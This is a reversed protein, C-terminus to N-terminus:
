GLRAMARPAFDEHLAGEHTAAAFGAVTRRTRASLRARVRELVPGSICLPAAGEAEWLLAFRTRDGGFRGHGWAPHLPRAGEGESFADRDGSDLYSEAPLGEALIVAHSPLEVHYYVVEDVAIQAVSGGNVLYRVPILAGDVFVAHDPSLFLDRAPQNAAFAHARVRVPLVSEPRPHSACDVRRHGVWRVPQDAGRHTLVLDGARLDEVAVAGHPTAIRTGEAYCAVLTINTNAGSTTAVFAWGPTPAVGFNLTLGGGGGVSGLSLVSGGTSGTITEHVGLLAITDGLGFSTLTSYVNGPTGVDLEEGVGTFKVTPVAIQGDITATGATGLILAGGLTGNGGLSGTILLNGNTTFTGDSIASGTLTGNGSARAGASVTFSSSTLTINSRALSVSGGSSIQVGGLSASVAGFSALDTTGVQLVGVVSLSGGTVSLSGYGYGPTGSLAGLQMGGQDTLLGGSISLTASQAGIGGINAISIQDSTSLTGGAITIGGNGIALGVGEGAQSTQQVVAGSGITLTGGGSSANGLDIAGTANLQGGSMTLTGSGGNGILLAPNQYVTGNFTTQAGVVNITGGSALTVLGTALSNGQAIAIGGNNANLLAGAGGVLVTGTAGVSSSYNNGVQLAQAVNNLNNGALNLTGGAGVTIMGSGSAVTPGVLLGGSVTAGSLVAGTITGLGLTGGTITGGSNSASGLSAGSIAGGAITGGSLTEGTLTQNIVQETGVSLVGGLSVSGGASIALSGTAGAGIQANGIGANLVAGPGSVTAVGTPNLTGSYATGITLDTTATGNPTIFLTGGAGVTLTGSGAFVTQSVTSNALTGGVVTGGTVVGGAVSAGTITEGSLTGGTITAGSPNISQDEGIILQGNANAVGGVVGLSGHGGQGVLLAAGAYSTGNNVSSWPGINLSGGNSILLSGSANPGGDGLQLQGNLSLMAGTGTVTLSGIASGNSNYNNGIGMAVGSVPDQVSVTGYSGITGTAVGNQLVGGGMNANGFLITGQVSVMASSGVSGAVNLTGTDGFGGALLNGNVSLTAGAGVSLLGSGGDQTGGANTGWGLLLANGSGGGVMASGGAQVSLTGSGGLDQGIWTQGTATLTTQTGTVLVSGQEFNGVQLASQTSVNAGVNVTAGNSITVTGSGTGGYSGTGVGMSLYGNGSTGGQLLAGSGSVVLDGTGLNGVLVAFNNATSPASTLLLTGGLLLTGTTLTGNGLVLANNTLTSQAGTSVFGGALIDLTGNGGYITSGTLTGNTLTGNTFTGSNGVFIGNAVAVSGLTGVYVVGSDGHGGIVLSSSAVVTGAGSSYTTGNNVVGGVVLTGTGGIAVLTASTNADGVNLSKAQSASGAQLLGGNEVTVTGNGGRGISGLGADIVVAGTGTITLIGTGRQAINLGNSGSIAGVLITGYSGVTVTGNGVTNGTGGIAINESTGGNLVAPASASGAVTLAGNGAQGIVVAATSGVTQTALVVDGAITGVGNSGSAAGLVLQPTTFTATTGSGTIVGTFAATAGSDILLTGTNASGVVVGAGATLSGGSVVELSAPSSSTAGDVSLSGAVGVTGALVYSGSDGISAAAGNGTITGSHAGALTVANGTTAAATATAVTNTDFWNGATGWAGGSAGQWTMPDSGASSVFTITTTGSATATNFSAASYSGAFTLSQSGLTLVGGSFGLTGTDGQLIIADGGGFNSITGTLSAGSAISLSGKPNFSVAASNGAASLLLDSNQQIVLSGSGTAAAALSLTGGGIGYTGAMLVGSVAVADNILGPGVLDGGAAISVANGVNGDTSITGGGLALLGGSGVIVSGGAALAIAAGADLLTGYDLIRGATASLSGTAALAFTGLTGVVLTGGSTISIAGSDTLGGVYNTGSVSGGVVLVGSGLAVSGGSAVALTGGAGSTTDVVVLENGGINISGTDSYNANILLTGGNTANVTGGGIMVDSSALGANGSTSFDGLVALSGITDIVAGSGLTLTVHGYGGDAVSMIAGSAVNTSGLFITANNFSQSAYGQAGFALVAGAVSQTVQGSGSVSASQNVTLGGSVVITTGAAVGSFDLPGDWVVNQLQPLQDTGAQVFLPMTTAIVTGAASVGELQGEILVTGTSPSFTVQQNSIDDTGSFIVTGLNSISGSNSIQYTGTFEITGTAATEITGSTTLTQTNNNSAGLGIVIEGGAAADIVGSNIFGNSSFGGSNFQADTGGVILTGGGSALLTGQNNLDASIAMTGALTQAIMGQNTLLDSSGNGSFSNASIIDGVAGSQGTITVGAGLILDATGTGFDGVALTAAAGSSPAGLAVSANNLTQYGEFLLEAGAGTIAAGGPSAGGFTQLTLASTGAQSVLTGGLVELTGGATNLNLLGRVTVNQLAGDQALLQGGSQAITGGSLVGPAGSSSNLDLTGASLTFTGGGLQLSGLVNLIVSPGSLTGGLAQVQEGAAISVTYGTFGGFQVTDISTPLSTAPVPSVLNTVDQWNSLVTWDGSSGIWKLTRAAM